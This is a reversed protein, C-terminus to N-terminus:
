FFIYSYLYSIYLFTYFACNGTVVCTCELNKLVAYIIVKSLGVGVEWIGGSEGDFHM